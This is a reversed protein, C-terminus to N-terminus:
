ALIERLLEEPIWNVNMSPLTNIVPYVEDKYIGLAKLLEEQTWLHKSELHVTIERHFNKADAKNQTLYQFLQELSYEYSININAFSNVTFWADLYEEKIFDKYHDLNRAFGQDARFQKFEQLNKSPVLCKKLATNAILDTNIWNLNLKSSVDELGISWGQRIQGSLKGLPDFQSSAEPSLDQKELIRVEEALIELLSQAQSFNKIQELPAQGSFFLAAFGLAFASLILLLVLIQLSVYGKESVM